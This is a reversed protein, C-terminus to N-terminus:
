LRRFAGPTMGTWRSFAHTFNSREAYGLRAAVDDITLDCRRILEPALQSRVQDRLSSFSVGAERLKRQLTRGSMAM